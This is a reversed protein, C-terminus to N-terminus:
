IGLDFGRGGDLLELGRKLQEVKIQSGRAVLRYCKSGKDGPEARWGRRPEGEDLRHERLCGGSRRDRILQVQIGCQFGESFSQAVNSARPKHDDRVQVLGM